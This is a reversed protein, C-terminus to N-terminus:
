RVKDQSKALIQRASAAIRIFQVPQGNVIAVVDPIPEPLPRERDIEPEAAVSGLAAPGALRGDAKRSCGGAASVVLSASATLLVLFRALPTRPSMPRRAPSVSSPENRRLCGLTPHRGM